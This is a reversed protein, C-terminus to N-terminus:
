GAPITDGEDLPDAVFEPDGVITWEADSSNKSRVTGGLSVPDVIVTGTVEAGVHETSPAFTFPVEAGKNTWTYDIVGDALVDQLATFSLTWNYSRDGALTDGCLVPIADGAEAAAAITCATVQCSMDLESGVAGFTLTGPGLSLPKRTPHVPATM